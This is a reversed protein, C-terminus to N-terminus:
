SSTVEEWEESTAPAFAADLARRADAVSEASLVTDLARSEIFELYLGARTPSRFRWAHGGATTVAERVREWLAEYADNSEGPVPRRTAILRHPSM